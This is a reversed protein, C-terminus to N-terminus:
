SFRRQQNKLYELPEAVGAFHCVIDNKKILNSILRTDFVSAKVFKFNKKKKFYAGLPKIDIGTVKYGEKILRKVWHSGIFGMAGTVLIRKRM